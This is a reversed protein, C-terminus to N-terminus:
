IASSARASDLPEGAATGGVTGALPQSGSRFRVKRARQIALTAEPIPVVMCSVAAVQAMVLRVVEGVRTVSMCVAALKGM